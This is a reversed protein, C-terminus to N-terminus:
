FYFESQLAHITEKDLRIRGESAQWGPAPLLEEATLTTRASLEALPICGATRLERDLRRAKEALPCNHEEM